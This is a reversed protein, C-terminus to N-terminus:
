KGRIKTMIGWLLAGATILIFGVHAQYEFEIAIGVVVSFLITYQGIIGVLDQTKKKM